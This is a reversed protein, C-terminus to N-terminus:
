EYRVVSSLLFCLFYSVLSIGNECPSNALSKM